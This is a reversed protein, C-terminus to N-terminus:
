KFRFGTADRVLEAVTKAYELGSMLIGLTDKSPLTVFATFTFAKDRGAKVAVEFNKWSVNPIDGRQVTTAKWSEGIDKSKSRATGGPRPDDNEKDEQGEQHAGEKAKKKANVKALCNSCNKKYELNAKRPFSTVPGQYACRGCKQLTTDPATISQPDENYTCCDARTM